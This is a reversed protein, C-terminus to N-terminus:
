SEEWKPRSPLVFDGEPGLPDNEDTDISAAAAAAMLASTEARVGDMRRRREHEARADAIRAENARHRHRAVALAVLGAVLCLASYALGFLFATISGTPEGPGYLAWLCGLLALLSVLTPALARTPRANRTAGALLVSLCGVSGVLFALSLLAGWDGGARM